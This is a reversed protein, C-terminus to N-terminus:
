GGGGPFTPVPGSEEPGPMGQAAQLQRLARIERAQQLNKGVYGVLAMGLAFLDIMDGSKADDPLRRYVLSAAPDAVDKVDEEDPTWVGAERAEQDALFAAALKCVQRFGVGLGTRLGAKSLKVGSGSSPTDSSAAPDPSPLDPTGDSSWTAEGPLPDPIAAPSASGPTQSLLSTEPSRSPPVFLPSGTAPRQPLPPPSTPDDSPAETQASRRPM